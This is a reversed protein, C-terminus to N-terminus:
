LQVATSTAWAYMQDAWIGIDDLAKESAVRTPASLLAVCLKRGSPTIIGAVTHFGSERLYGTKAGFFREPHERLAGVTHRISYERGLVASFDYEPMSAYRAIEPQRLAQCIALALDRANSLNQLSLGSPEVIQTSPMDWDQATRRMEELFKPLSGSAFTALRNAANNASAILMGAFLERAPLREGDNLRLLVYRDNPEVYKRLDGENDWWSFGLLQGWNPALRVLTGATLLKMLSATPMVNQEGHYYLPQLTTYDLVAATQYPVSSTLYTHTYWYTFDLYGPRKLPEAAAQVPVATCLLWVALFGFIFKYSRM